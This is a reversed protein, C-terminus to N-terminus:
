SAVSESLLSHQDISGSNVYLSNVDNKLLYKDIAEKDIGGDKNIFLEIM